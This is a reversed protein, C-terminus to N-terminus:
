SLTKYENGDSRQMPKSNKDPATKCVACREIKVNRVNLLITAKCHPCQATAIAGSQLRDAVLWATTINVVGGSLTHRYLVYADLIALARNGPECGDMAIRLCDAFFVGEKYARVNRFARRLSQRPQGKPPPKKHLRIYIDRLTPLKIGTEMHVLKLRAGHKVMACALDYRDPYDTAPTM